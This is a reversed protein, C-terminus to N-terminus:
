HDGDNSIKGPVLFQSHNGVFISASFIFLVLIPSAEWVMYRHDRNSSITV